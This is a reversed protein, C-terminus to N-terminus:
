NNINKNNNNIASPFYYHLFINIHLINNMMVYIAKLVISINKM